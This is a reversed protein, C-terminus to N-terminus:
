NGKNDLISVKAYRNEDASYFVKIVSSSKVITVGSFVPDDKGSAVTVGAALALLCFILSAKKM